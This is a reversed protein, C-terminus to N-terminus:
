LLPLTLVFETGCGLAPHASLAITGGHLAVIRRTISLGLGSGGSSRADSGVVFPEFITQMQKPPIGSGNDAVTVVATKGGGRLSVALLTGLRNHRLSNSLLNDLVRTFQFPDLACFLPTEPISVELTFGALDIEGYKGALYVRLFECLDTRETHLVFAPHEVKAYEHFANVLGTLAQTRSRIAELCRPQDEPPIKGAALADAYGAIVTVPTKIDHSIDAIMRQRDRDLRERERESEALRDSLMDFTEGIRRLERVDTCNGVRVSRGEVQALMADHLRDLPLRIARRIRGAFFAGALVSVPLLLLWVRWSAQYAQYTTQEDPFATSMLLVRAEGDTNKFSFQSLSARAPWMGALIAYERRTYQERGDGLGGSVVRLSSDLEMEESGGDETYRTVRYRAPGDGGQIPYAEVYSGSSYDSVCSLEGQTLSGLAEESSWISEGDPTLVAFGDENGLYARLANYNGQKLRSDALLQEWDTISYIRDICSSWLWYVGGAAVALTLAFLLFSKGLLASLGRERRKM